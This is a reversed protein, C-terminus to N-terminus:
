KSRPARFNIESVEKKLVDPSAINIGAAKIEKIKANLDAKNKAFYMLAGPSLQWKTGAGPIVKGLHKRIIPSTATDIVLMLKDHMFFPYIRAEKRDKVMQKRVAFFHPLESVPALEMNYLGRKGKEFAAFVKTLREVTQDSLHFNEEVYDLISNLQNKRSVTVYAYENIEKFKFKKLQKAFELNDTELTLYGHYFAPSLTLAPAEVPTADKSAPRVTTPIKANPEYTVGENVPKGEKLNKKRKEGAEMTRIRVKAQRGERRERKIREAEEQEELIQQDRLAKEHRKIDAKRYLLNVAFQDQIEDPKIKTPLFVVGMDRFNYTEGTEKLKVVISSIPRDKNIVGDAKKGVYRANVVMIMGYGVDTMVPKGILGTPDAVFPAGDPTRLFQKVSVPKWGNPDRINQSSVFPTQIDASGELKPSPPVPIMRAEMTTRMQHFEERQIANLKVYANVYESYDNLSPRQQLTELSMSVEELLNSSLVDAYAPNEAEDFRTKNFIKAILRGQKAVEMTNNALVWDLFVAERYIDGEKAGKPDPRFVRSASQDLEGPGWPSEVRIMRSALQLNHGESMGMENAILIKVKPDTKFAELNSWKDVEEGTFKVAQRQYKAPLARYVAEVSRTYRCFILVKGEPEKKWIDPNESPVKGITERPLEVRKPTSKDLKRSLYLSGEHEVLIWENYVKGKEWKPPNFHQDVLDAIVRAKRSTYKSIGAAGFIKPFAEDGEPDIIMREIRALHAEVDAQSLMGLEEGSEMELDPRREAGEEDDDDDNDDDEEDEDEAKGRHAKKAKELLEQLQEISENVVTDYLQRHLEGLQLEEPTANDPTFAVSHFSEIPNPLMFAWEKKKKTVVVAYRGLRQRARQPTNVKWLSVSEDGLKLSESLEKSITEGSLEGNRFIHPSYLAVQGEIDKVRDAILTGTAIRLYDVFSATTLQKIIKHRSTKQGKLKHSEDIIIYNFKLAKIFELNTGVEVVSNGIVISMKNNRMFNFGAVVITNPPATEILHTLKEPGWRKFVHKDIPIMNWNDGGVFSKMDNCWNPILGDPCLILPRVRKGLQQLEGILATIDTLGIATKGGGPSIDLVGFKPPNPKRLYRHTDLQHPFMSLDPHSGPVHIDEIQLGEDREISKIAENARQEIAEYNQAYKGFMLAIPKVVNLIRSSDPRTVKRKVVRTDSESYTITEDFEHVREGNTLQQVSLSNIGDLIQKFMNGGVFNYLRAFHHAPSQDVLFFDPHDKIEEQVTQFDVGEGLEQQVARAVYSNYKGSCATVTRSLLNKMTRVDEYQNRATNRLKGDSTIVGSYVDAQQRPTDNDFKTINLEAMARQLLEDLGPLEGKYVHYFYTNLLDKFQDHEVFKDPAMQNGYIERPDTDNGIPDDHTMLMLSDVFTKQLPAEGEKALNFGLYDAITLDDPKVSGIQVSCTVIGPRSSAYVRLGYDWDYSLISGNFEVLRKLDAQAQTYVDYPIGYQVLDTYDGSLLSTNIGYDSCVKGLAAGLAEYEHIANLNTREDATPLYALTGSPTVYLGDENARTQEVSMNLRKRAETVANLKSVPLVYRPINSLKLRGAALANKARAGKKRLFQTSWLSFWNDFNTVNLEESEEAQAIFRATPKDFTFAITGGVSRNLLAAEETVNKQVNNKVLTEASLLSEKPTNSSYLQNNFGRTLEEAAHKEAHLVLCIRVFQEAKKSGDAGFSINRFFDVPLTVGVVREFIRQCEVFDTTIPLTKLNPEYASHENGAGFLYELILRAAQKVKLSTNTMYSQLRNNEYGYATMNSEIHYGYQINSCMLSTDRSSRALIVDLGGAYVSSPRISHKGGDMMSGLLSYMSETVINGKGHAMTASQTHAREALQGIRREWEPRNSEIAFLNRGDRVVERMFLFFSNISHTVDAAQDFLELLRDRKRNFFFSNYDDYLEPDLSVPQLSKILDPSGAALSVYEVTDDDAGGLANFMADTEQQFNTKAAQGSTAADIAASIRNLDFISGM